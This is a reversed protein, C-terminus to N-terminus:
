HRDLGAALKGDELIFGDFFDRAELGSCVALTLEYAERARPEDTPKESMGSVICERCVRPRHCNQMLAATSVFDCVSYRISPHLAGSYVAFASM